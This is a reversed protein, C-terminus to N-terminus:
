VIRTIATITYSYDNIYVYLKNHKSIKINVKNTRSTRQKTQTRRLPRRLLAQPYLDPNKAELFTVVVARVARCTEFGM